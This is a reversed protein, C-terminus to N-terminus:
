SSPPRIQTRDDGEDDYPPTDGYQQPRATPPPGWQQPQGPPSAPPAPQEFSAPPAPPWGGPQPAAGPASPPAGWAGPAGPVGPPAWGPAAAARPGTSLAVGSGPVPDADRGFLLPYLLGVITAGLLPALIFVWLQLIPDLGGQLLAPGISRAPNVSTGTMRMSVLHIVALAVGIALPALSANPSRRDTVALIVLVFIATLTLEALFAAWTAYGTGADGFSNAGLGDGYGYGPFGLLLVFLVVAGVIGGLVQVGAYGAAHAWSLRGSLAAGLSVAPNFHGGSVHGFAWILFALTLGFALATGVYDNGVIAAGCGFFVLLGTGLWEALLKRWLPSEVGEPAPEPLPHDSVAGHESM